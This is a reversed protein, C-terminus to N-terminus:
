TEVLLEKQSASATQRRNPGGSSLLKVVRNPAIVSLETLEKTANLGDKTQLRVTRKRNGANLKEQNRNAPWNQRDPSIVM